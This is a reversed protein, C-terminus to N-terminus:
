LAGIALLITVGAKHRPGAATKRLSFLVTAKPHQRLRYASGEDMGVTEAAAAVSGCVELAQIFAAQRAPSWGDSRQRRPVPTFTPLTSMTISYGIQIPTPFALRKDHVDKLM